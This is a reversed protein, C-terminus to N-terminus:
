VQLVGPKASRAFRLQCIEQAAPPVVVSVLRTSKLLPRLSALM